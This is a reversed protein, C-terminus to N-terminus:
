VNGAYVRIMDAKHLLLVVVVDVVFFGLAVTVVYIRNHFYVVCFM